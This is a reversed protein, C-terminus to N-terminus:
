ALLAAEQEATLGIGPPVVVEGAAEAERAWALTDAATQEVARLELGAKLARSPDAALMGTLAGPLWLPLGTWPEVGAATLADDTVEVLEVHGGVALAVGGLLERMGLPPCVVNYTGGADEELQGLAFAAVDRADVLQAPQAAPPVPVRGGGALRRPWWTFRGTHDHPGAVLGLRLVLADDGRAARVADECAVKLEGYVEWDLEEGEVPAKLPADEDAGAEPDDYVSITSIYTWHGIADDLVDLARRVHWPLYGNVDVLADWRRGRLEALDGGRDATVHEARGAFLDANTQGRTLLTVNHGRGLATEVLHRGVFRTGGLVLLDM